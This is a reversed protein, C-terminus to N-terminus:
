LKEIHCVTNKMDNDDVSYVWGNFAIFEYGVSKATERCIDYSAPFLKQSDFVDRWSM